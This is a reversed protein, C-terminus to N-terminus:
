SIPMPTSMSYRAIYIKVASCDVTFKLGWSRLQVAIVPLQSCHPSLQRTGTSYFKSCPRMGLWQIFSKKSSLETWFLHTIWCFYVNIYWAYPWMFRYAFDPWTRTHPRYPWKPNLPWWAPQISLTSQAGSNCNRSHILNAMLTSQPTNVRKLMDTM